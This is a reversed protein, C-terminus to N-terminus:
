DYRLHAYGSVRWQREYLDELAVIGELLHQPGPGGPVSITGRYHAAFAQADADLSTLSAQIRPDDPGAFLDSLDWRVGKASAADAASSGAGSEPLGGPRQSAMGWAVRVKGTSFM